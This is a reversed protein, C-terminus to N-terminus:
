LCWSGPILWTAVPCFSWLSQSCRLPSGIDHQNWLSSCLNRRQAEKAESCRWKQVKEYLGGVTRYSGSGRQNQEFRSKNGESRCYERSVTCPSEDRGHFWLGFSESQLQFSIFHKNKHRITCFSINNHLSRNNNTSSERRVTWAETEGSRRESHRWVLDTLFAM